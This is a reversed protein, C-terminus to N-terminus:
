KVVLGHTEGPLISPSSSAPSHDARPSRTAMAILSGLVGLDLLVFIPLAQEISGGGAGTAMGIFLSAGLGIGMPLLARWRWGKRWAKATFIIELIAIM